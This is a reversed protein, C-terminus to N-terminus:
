YNRVTLTLPTTNPLKEETSELRIAELKKSSLVIFILGLTSVERMDDVLEPTNDEPM